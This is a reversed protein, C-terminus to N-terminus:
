KKKPQGKEAVKNGKALMQFYLNVVGQSVDSFAGVDDLWEEVLERTIEKNDEREGSGNLLGLYILELIISLPREEMIKDMKSSSIGHEELKMTIWISYKVRYEKGKIEITTTM